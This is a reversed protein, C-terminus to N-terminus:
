KWILNQKVNGGYDVWEGTHIRVRWVGRSEDLHALDGELYPRPKKQKPDGRSRRPRPVFPTVAGGQPPLPHNKLPRRVPEEKHATIPVPALETQPIAGDRKQYPRNGSDVAHNTGNETSTHCTVIDVEIVTTCGKREGTRLHIGYKPGEERWYKLSKFVSKRDCGIERALTQASASTRGHSLLIALVAIHVPGHGGRCIQNPLAAFPYSVKGM